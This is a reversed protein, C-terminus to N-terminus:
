PRRPRSHPRPRGRKIPHRIGHDVPTDIELYTPTGTLVGQFNRLQDGIHIGGSGFELERITSEHQGGRRKFVSLAKRIEGGFEFYRFLLVTDALYSIDVGQVSTGGIVTHQGVILLTTVEQNGLYALLEHLHLLLSREEPMSNLYGSLSDIVILRAGDREVARRVEHAFQGPTLEAPDIKQIQVHGSQTAADLQIGLAAARMSLLRPDEEFTYVIAKEGRLGSSVAFQLGVTSKGLGPPGVLLASSGSDLGSGLLKDLERIGSRIVQPVSSRRYEAAILRPYVRLGGTQIRYDHYGERFPIGRMKLVQLRRRQTGFEPVSRELSIVGHAISELQDDRGQGTLDDLLLVTCASKAFYQKLFLVQRRYRLPDAALLRWESLSDFVLRLPRIRNVLDVIAQTAETFELEGSHLISQETAPSLADADSLDYITVGPLSWGHSAAVAAIEEKTESLTIYLVPEAREAGSLLFQLAATTKGTGPSGKLLCFRGQPFGGGLIEDLGAIGSDARAAFVHSGVSHPEVSPRAQRPRPAKATQKAM